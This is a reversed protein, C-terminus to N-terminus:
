ALHAAFRLRVYDAWWSGDPNRLDPALAAAVEDLWAVHEAEPLAALFSGGFTVLWDQMRSPLPTPREILAIGQVVFGAARLKAAYDEVSAFYWPVRAQGDIGRRELAAVCAAKIRAVNHGGGCEAVFRGGPKLARAVGALVAEADTMWHLAANSFVADFEADFTLAEGNMVHADLGEARAQAVQEPSADVGVVEAGSAALRHTLAGDGCGLDLIREGPRPALLDLLPAGYVAVFGAHRRYGEPNWDQAPGAAM